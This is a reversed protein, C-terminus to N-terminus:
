LIAKPPTSLVGAELDMAKQSSPQNVQGQCSVSGTIGAKHLANNLEARLRQKEQESVPNGNSYFTLVEMAMNAINGATAQNDLTVSISSNSFKNVFHVVLKQSLDDGVPAAWDMAYNQEEMFESVVDLVKLKEHYNHMMQQSVEMIKLAQPETESDFEGAMKRIMALNVPNRVQDLVLKLDEQMKAYHGQSYDNLDEDLAEDCDKGAPIHIYRRKEMEEMLGEIRAQLQMSTFDLEMQEVQQAAVAIAVQRIV